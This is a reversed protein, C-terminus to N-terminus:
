NDNNSEMESEKMKRRWFKRFALSIEDGKVSVERLEGENRHVLDYQSELLEIDEAVIKASKRAM